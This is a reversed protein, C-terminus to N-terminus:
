FDAIKSKYLMKFDFELYNKALKNCFPLLFNRYLM